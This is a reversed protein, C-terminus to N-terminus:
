LAKCEELLRDEFKNQSQLKDFKNTDGKLGEYVALTEYCCHNCTCSDRCMPMTFSKLTGFDACIVGDSSSGMYLKCQGCDERVKHYEHPREGTSVTYETPKHCTPCFRGEPSYGTKCVTCVHFSYKLPNKISRSIGSTHAIKNFDAWRPIKAYAYEDKFATFLKERNISTFFNLGEEMDKLTFEDITPYRGKINAIFNKTTM